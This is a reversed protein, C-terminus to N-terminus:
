VREMLSKVDIKNDRVYKLFDMVAHEPHMYARFEYTLDARM